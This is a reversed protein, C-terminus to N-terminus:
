EHFKLSHGNHCTFCSSIDSKEFKVEYSSHCGMCLDSSPSVFFEEQGDGHCIFCGVNVLGHMGETWAKAVEPTEVSHCELCSVSFDEDPHEDGSNAGVPLGMMTSVVLLAPIWLIWKLM